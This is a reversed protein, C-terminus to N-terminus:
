APPAMPLGAKALVRRQLECLQQVGGLGAQLLQAFDAQSVAGDEATAQVEVLKGERTAVVNMDMAANSDEPYDLDVLVEDQVIGVSIAAVQDILCDGKGLRELALALAVYGATVSATRTGGDAELIDCDVTITCADLQSLDVAARLARAILRQIELSRAKPPGKRSDRDQRRNPNARPHMAYEATVWGGPRNGMWAPAGPNCSATALVVTGGARYLASGEANRQFGTEIQVARPDFHGRGESRKM